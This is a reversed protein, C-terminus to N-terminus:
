ALAAMIRPNSYWSYLGERVPEIGLEDRLDDLNQDMRQDWNVAFLPKARVGMEMGRTILDYTYGISGAYDEPTAHDEDAKDTKFFDLM